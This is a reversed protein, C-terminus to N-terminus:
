GDLQHLEALVHGSPASPGSATVSGVEVSLGYGSPQVSRSERATSVILTSAASATWFTPLPWGPVAILRAGSAYRSNWFTMRCLGPSACQGPLSRNTRDQPCELM